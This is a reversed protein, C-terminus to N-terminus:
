VSIGYRPGLERQGVATPTTGAQDRDPVSAQEGGCGVALLALAAVPLLPRM